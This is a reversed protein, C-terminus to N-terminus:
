RVPLINYNTLTDKRYPIDVRVADIVDKSVTIVKFEEEEGFSIPKTEDDVWPPCIISHGFHAGSQNISMFYVQNELARSVVFQQWSHFSLDQAFAVPHLILDVECEMCLRRILEPFRIDYCIVVGIKIGELEFVSLHNGRDFYNVEAADGYQATHIKDYHTLYTGSKDLTIHSIYHRGQDRRPMGYSIATNYKKCVDSFIQFTEGLLEESYTDINEFNNVSYELTSLEPLLVLDVTNNELQITLKQILSDIHQRQDAKSSIAPIKIQCALVRM